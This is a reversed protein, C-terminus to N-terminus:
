QLEEGERDIEALRPAPRLGFRDYRYEADGYRFVVADGDRAARVPALPDEPAGRLLHHPLVLGGITEGFPGEIPSTFTVARDDEGLRSAIKGVEEKDLFRAEGFHVTRDVLVHRAVQRDILQRGRVRESHAEWGLERAIAALAEPHTSAEVLRRNDGPIAFVESSESLRWTAELVRLDDYVTGYGHPGVALGDARLYRGLERHPPVLVEVAPDEFGSPRGREHRHLRGIRQLLVDMPCLDTILLDADLDLSQEVTQTAM